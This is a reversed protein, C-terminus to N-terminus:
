PIAIPGPVVRYYRQPRTEPQSDYWIQTPTTLTANAVGAWSNTNSLDSTMQVGYTQGVVGEITVGTYLAISMGSPIVTLIAPPASTVSGYM